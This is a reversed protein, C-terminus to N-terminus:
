KGRIQVVAHEWRTAATGYVDDKGMECQLLMWGWGSSCSYLPAFVHPTKRYGKRIKM